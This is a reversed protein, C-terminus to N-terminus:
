LALHCEDHHAERDAVLAGYTASFRRFPWARCSVPGVCRPGDPDAPSKMGADLVGLDALANRYRCAAEEKVWKRVDQQRLLDSM